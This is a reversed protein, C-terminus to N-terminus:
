GPAAIPLCVCFLGPENEVAVAVQFGSLVFGFQSAHVLLLKGIPRLRRGVLFFQPAAKVIPPNPIERRRIFDHKAASRRRSGNARSRQNQRFLRPRSRHRETRLAAAPTTTELADASKVKSHTLESGAQPDPLAKRDIKGNPTLPLERLPVLHTPM